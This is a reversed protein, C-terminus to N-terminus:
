GLVAAVRSAEVPRPALWREAKEVAGSWEAWRAQFGRKFWSVVVATVLADDDPLRAPDLGLLRALAESRRFRGDPSQALLVDLLADSAQAPAEAAVWPGGEHDATGEARPAPGAAPASPALAARVLGFVGGGSRVAPAARSRAVAGMPAGSSGPAMAAFVAENAGGWGATLALPVRRLEAAQTTRDADARHEVAVYSTHSTVLGFTVGLRVIEDKVRDGGRGQQSGRRQGQGEELDRVRDRAWLVPVAGADASAVVTVEQRTGDVVLAVRAPEGGDVRARLLVVDDAFAARVRSPAATVLAGCWDVEVNRRAARVRRFTRLVKPEIREGPAIHESLGGSVRSVGNVLTRSAGAGIGFAFVPVGSQACLEVVAAENGVQGDTLLVVRRSPGGGAVAARLPALIETGGLTADTSALWREAEGFSAESWAVPAGWLAQHSSGFRVLNFRDGAGLQRLCLSLARRAEHISSGGMSGSCDVVFVVEVGEAQAGPEPVFLVEMFRGGTRADTVLTAVPRARTSPTLLVVLDRDMAASAQALSVVARDAELQVEVPHTPSSLARVGGGPVAELAVELRLHFGYPVRGARPPNLREADPEGVQASAPVYRPSVTTPLTYRLHEGELPLPAVTTVELEVEGGPPLNGVSAVFVDPREQDLLVAGHGAALADDYRAFAEDREAVSGEIVRDGVRARFGCVAAGEDLPFVYVVELPTAEGNRYRQRLVQHVHPGRVVGTVEVGLLPVPAPADPRLAVLGMPLTSSSLVRSM